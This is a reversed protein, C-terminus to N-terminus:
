RPQHPRRVGLFVGGEDAIRRIATMLPEVAVSMHHANAHLLLESDAMIGVHGKWFVLDGREVISLNVTLDHSLASHIQEDVPIVSQFASFQMDSDRPCPMGAAMMSMQVLGSCDIGAPTCGGWLYPAGTLELAVAVYDDAFHSITRLHRAFVFGSPTRCFGDAESQVAVRANLHLRGQVPSKIDASRYSFTTPVRVQHTLPETSVGRSVGEAKVYGVYGDRRLQVWAWDSAHDGINDGSDDGHSTRATMDFVDVAEGFIAENERMSDPDPARHMPLVDCAVMAPQAEAFRAASVVGKLRIDALDTRFAHLRRDLATLAGQDPESRDPDPVTKVESM